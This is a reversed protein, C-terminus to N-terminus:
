QSFYHSFIELDSSGGFALLEIFGLSFSGPSMTVVSSLGIVFLFEQFCGVYFSMNTCVEAPDTRWSLLKEDSLALLCVTPCGEL